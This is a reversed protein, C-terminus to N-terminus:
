EPLADLNLQYQNSTKRGHGSTVSIVGLAELEAQWRKVSRFAPM